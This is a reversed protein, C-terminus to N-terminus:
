LISDASISYVSIFVAGVVYAIAFIVLTPAMPSDLQEKIVAWKEMIIFGVFATISAISMKGLFMFINGIGGVLLFKDAHKLILIFANM